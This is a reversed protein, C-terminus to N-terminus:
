KAPTTGSDRIWERLEEVSSLRLWEAPPRAYVHEQAIQALTAIADEGRSQAATALALRTAALGGPDDHGYLVRPWEVLLARLHECVTEVLAAEGATRSHRPDGVAAGVARQAALAQSRACISFLLPVTRAAEGATMGALVRAAAPRASELGVRAVRGNECVLRAVIEGEPNM